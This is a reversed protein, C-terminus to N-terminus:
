GVWSSPRADEATGGPILEKLLRLVAHPDRLVRLEDIVENTLPSSVTSASIHRIKPHETPALVEHEATLSESLKEGPRTGTFVIEIDEHPVLGSSRILQEALDAIRVPEGMDLVFVDGSGGLASAQLVLRCAEPITMFYRTMDPHTVTVPGGRSIQERFVPVVSGSSDLVNGFRVAVYARGTSRAVDDVIWESLLKTMGMVSTPEVAKDTSILVFRGVGHQHCSHVLTHTAVANNRVAEVPNAEVLPVHKYAAAHYVISPRHELLILDMREQDGADALYAHLRVGPFQHALDKEIAWLASESREVLVLEIPDLAALQRSLEGGISGGAGTVLVVESRVLPTIGALDLRVPDRGLLDEPNIPRLASIDVQGGVLEHVGPVIQTRLGLQDCQLVIRRIDAGVASAICIVAMEADYQEVVRALDETTGAVELGQIRMGVKARDDDVFAVAQLGLDPRSRLERAVAIGARGAGILVTRQRAGSMPRVRTFAQEIRVRHVARVAILGLVAFAANAAVVGIPVVGLVDQSRAQMALEAALRGLLMVASAEAIGRGIAWADELSVHRWSQRHVRHRRLLLVELVVVGPLVAALQTVAHAPVEGAYRLLYSAVFAILLVLLDIALRANKPVAM